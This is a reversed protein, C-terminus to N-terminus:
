SRRRRGLCAGALGAIMAATTPEPVVSYGGALPSATHGGATWALPDATFNNGEFGLANTQPDNGALNVRTSKPGYNTVTFDDVALYVASGDVPMQTLTSNYAVDWRIIDGADRITVEDNNNSLFYSGPDAFQVVNAQAAGDFWLSEFALKSKAIVLYEGSALAISPLAQKDNDNDGITWGTLDVADPGYNFLEVWENGDLPVPMFETVAITNASASGLAFGSTLTAMAIRMRM